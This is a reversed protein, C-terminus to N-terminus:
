SQLPPGFVKWGLLGLVVVLFGSSIYPYAGGFIIALVWLIILIWFLIGIPM